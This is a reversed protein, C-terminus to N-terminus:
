SIKTRIQDSIDYWRQTTNELYRYHILYAILLTVLLADVLLLVILQSTMTVFISLLTCISVTMTVILHVLREHQINVIKEKHDELLELLESKNLDKELSKLVKEEHKKWM